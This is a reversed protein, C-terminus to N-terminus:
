SCSRTPGAAVSIRATDLDVDKWRLGLVEGRRMGTMAAVHWAAKLRHGDVAQLFARLESADWFAIESAFAASTAVLFLGAAIVSLIARNM